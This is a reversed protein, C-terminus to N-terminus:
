KGNQQSSYYLFIYLFSIKNLRTFKTKNCFFFHIKAKRALFNRSHPPTERTEETRPGGLLSITSLPFCTQPIKARSPYALKKWIFIAMHLNPLSFRALALGLRGALIVPTIRFRLFLPSM